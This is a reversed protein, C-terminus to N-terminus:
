TPPSRTEPSESPEDPEAAPPDAGPTKEDTGAEPEEQKDDARLEGGARGGLLALAGADGVSMALVPTKLSQRWLQAYFYSVLLTTILAVGQSTSLQYAQTEAFAAPRLAFFSVVAPAFMLIRAVTRLQANRIGVSIGLMFALAMLLLCVPIYLHEGLTPGYSGRETDDRWLELAFRLFGYAFTFL